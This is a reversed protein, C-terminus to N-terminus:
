TNGNKSLRNSISTVPSIQTSNKEDNDHVAGKPAGEDVKIRKRQFLPLDKAFSDQTALFASDDLKHKRIFKKKYAEEIQSNADPMNVKNFVPKFSQSIKLLIDAQESSSVNAIENLITKKLADVLPIEVNALILYNSDVIHCKFAIQWNELMQKWEDSAFIERNTILFIVVELISTVALEIKENLTEEDDDEDEDDDEEDDTKVLLAMHQKSYIEPLWRLLSIANEAQILSLNNDFWEILQNTLDLIALPMRNHAVLDNFYSKFLETLTELDNLDEISSLNDNYGGDEYYKKLQFKLSAALNLSPTVNKGQTNVVPIHIPALSALSRRIVTTTAPLSLKNDQVQTSIPQLSTTITVPQTEQPAEKYRHYFFNFCQPKNKLGAALATLQFNNLTRKFGQKLQTKLYHFNQLSDINLEITKGPIKNHSVVYYEESNREGNDSDPECAEQDLKFTLYSENKEELANQARATNKDMYFNREGSCSTEGILM